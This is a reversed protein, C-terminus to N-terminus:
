WRHWGFHRYGFRRYGFRHWGYGYGRWGFRRYGFGYGGFNPRCFGYFGRHRFPGCGGSTLTVDPLTSSALPLPQVAPMADAAAVPMFMAALLSAAVATKVITRM